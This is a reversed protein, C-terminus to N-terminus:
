SGMSGHCRANVGTTRGKVMSTAPSITHCSPLGVRTSGTSIRALAASCAARSWARSQSSCRHGDGCGRQRRERQPPEEPPDIVFERGPSPYEIQRRGPEEVDGVSGIQGGIEHSALRRCGHSGCRAGVTLESLVDHQCPEATPAHELQLRNLDEVLELDVSRADVHLGDTEVDLPALLQLDGLREVLVDLRPHHEVDETRPLRERGVEAGVRSWVDEVQRDAVVEGPDRRFGTAVNM